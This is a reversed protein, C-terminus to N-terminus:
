GASIGRATRRRSNDIPSASTAIRASAGTTLSFLCRRDGFRPSVVLGFLFGGLMAVRRGVSDPVPDAQVALVARGERGSARARALVPAPLPLRSADACRFAAAQFWHRRLFRLRRPALWLKAAFELLFVLWIVLVGM